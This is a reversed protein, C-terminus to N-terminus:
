PDVYFEDVIKREGTAAPEDASAGELPSHGFATKLIGYVIGLVGVLTAFLLVGPTLDLKYECVMAIVLVAVGILVERM